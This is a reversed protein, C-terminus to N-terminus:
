DAFREYSSGESFEATKLADYLNDESAFGGLVMNSLAVGDRTYLNCFTSDEDDSTISVGKLMEDMDIEMFCAVLNQGEIVMDNVPIAIIVKKDTSELNLISIEPESITKYDFHYDDINTQPGLSTYILGETDVFAFKELNYIRKMRAQYAQLHEIDALDDETMLELAINMDKISKSLNSSVVQERRGALEDLYLLSVSEVASQTDKTALLGTMLTGITLILVFAVSGVVAATITSNSRTRKM